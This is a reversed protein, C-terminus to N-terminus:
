VRQAAPGAEARSPKGLYQRAFEVVEARAQKAEAFIHEFILFAHPLVPWVDIRTDVGAEEARRAALLSDDLLIERESAIFYLPPFGRYDAYLPSIEPDSADQDGVYWQILRAAQSMPVLSETRANRPRSPPAHLRGLETVPSLCVACAPMELSQRALRHLLCLVLNGGASDGILLINDASYGAELLGRYARECDDLAAPAPNHPALRYDPMFSWADLDVCLRGVLEMHLKPIAPFLFAGGHLYLVATRAPDGADGIIHGPMGHFVRYEQPLGSYSDKLGAAGKAQLPAVREAPVRSMLSVLRKFFVRQLWVRFRSYWGIKVQKVPPM